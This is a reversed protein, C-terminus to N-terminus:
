RFVQMQEEREGGKKEIFRKKNQCLKEQHVNAKSYKNACWSCLHCKRDPLLGHSTTHGCDSGWNWQYCPVGDTDKNYEHRVYDGKNQRVSSTAATGSDTRKTVVDAANARGAQKTSIRTGVVCSDRQVDKIAYQDEWGYPLRGDGIMTFVAESWQRCTPWDWITAMTALQHVHELLHEKWSAPLSRDKVM